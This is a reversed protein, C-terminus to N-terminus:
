VYRGVRERCSARGIEDLDIGRLVEVPPAGTGLTLTLNRASIALSPSTVVRRHCLCPPLVLLSASACVRKTSLKPAPARITRAAARRHRPCPPASAFRRPRPRDAQQCRAPSPAAAGYGPRQRCGTQRIHRPALDSSCVDSSWDSIRM